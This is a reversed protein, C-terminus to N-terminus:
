KIADDMGFLNILDENYIKIFLRQPECELCRWARRQATSHSHFHHVLFLARRNDPDSLDADLM